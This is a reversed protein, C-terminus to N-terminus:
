VVSKRDVLSLKLIDYYLYEIIIGLIDLPLNKIGFINLGLVAQILPESENKFRKSVNEETMSRGYISQKKRRREAMNMQRPTLTPKSENKSSIKSDEQHQSQMVKTPISKNQTKNIPPNNFIELLKQLLDPAANSILVKVNAKTIITMKGANLMQPYLESIECLRFSCFEEKSKSNTLKITISEVNNIEQRIVALIKNKNQANKTISRDKILIGNKELKCECYLNLVIKGSIANGAKTNNM